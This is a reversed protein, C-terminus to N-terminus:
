NAEDVKARRMMSTLGPNKKGNFVAREEGREVRSESNEVYYYLEEGSTEQEGCLTRGEVFDSNSQVQMRNMIIHRWIISNM